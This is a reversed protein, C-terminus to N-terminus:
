QSYERRTFLSCDIKDVDEDDDETKTVEEQKTFVERFMAGNDGPSITKSAHSHKYM